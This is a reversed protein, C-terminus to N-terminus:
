LMKGLLVSVEKILPRNLSLFIENKHHKSTVLGSDKLIHIHFRLTERSMKFRELLKTLTLSDDNKIETLIDTRTKYGIAKFIKNYKTNISYM